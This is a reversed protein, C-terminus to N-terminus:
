LRKRSNQGVYVPQWGADVYIGFQVGLIRMNDNRIRVARSASGFRGHIMVESVVANLCKWAARSVGGDDSAM